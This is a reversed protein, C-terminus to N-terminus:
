MAKPNNFGGIRIVILRQVRREGEIKEGAIREGAIKEGLRQGREGVGMKM